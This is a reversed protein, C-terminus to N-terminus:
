PNSGDSSLSTRYIEQLKNSKRSGFDRDVSENKKVIGNVWENNLWRGGVM